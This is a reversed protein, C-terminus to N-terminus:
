SKGAKCFLIHIRLIGDKYEAFIRGGMQETLVKAISLGLGTSREATEITYYRDFLKAVQVEDLGFARNTFLIEGNESLVISLDGDSYKIANEIVNGFIRSLANRNLSRFIRKEPISIKPTIKKSKLAVYYASISEELIQNLTVKEWKLSGETSFIISYRFLEETLEKLAETREGIIALYRKAAESKEEEKLLDLYGCIATLPTRLDHSINTITERLELDGQSFRQREERLRCLQINIRDALECMCRDRSSIDILCNTDGELQNAFAEEIEKASKKLLFIKGILIGTICVFIGISFWLWFEM